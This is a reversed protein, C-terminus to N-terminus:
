TGQRKRERWRYHDWKTDLKYQSSYKIEMNIRFHIFFELLDFPSDIICKSSSVDVWIKNIFSTPDERININALKMLEKTLRKLEDEFQHLNLENFDDEHRCQRLQNTLKDLKVEMQHIYEDSNELITQRAQEATQQIIKISKREWQDIQQILTHYNGQDLQQTFSQRFLDRNVEIEDFQKSLEQRHSEWHKYCFEDLCGSCRLTSKEKGCIVCCTTAM